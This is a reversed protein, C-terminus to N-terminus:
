LSIGLKAYEKERNKTLRIADIDKRLHLKADLYAGAAATCAIGAAIKGAFDVNTLSCQTTITLRVSPWPRPLAVHPHADLRRANELPHLSM